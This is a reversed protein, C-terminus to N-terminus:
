AADSDPIPTHKRGHAAVGIVLGELEQRFVGLVRV